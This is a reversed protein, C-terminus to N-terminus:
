SEKKRDLFPKISNKNKIGTLELIIKPDLGKNVCQMIFGNTLSNFSVKQNKIKLGAKESYIRFAKQIARDKFAFPIYQLHKEKFGIPLPVIRKVRMRGERNVKIQNKKIDIDERELNLVENLKLGSGWALLFAIKHRMQKTVRFLETFEDENISVRLSRPLIKISNTLLNHCIQITNYFILKLDEKEASLNHSGKDSLCDSTPKLYKLPVKGLLELSILYNKCDSVNRLNFKKDKKIRLIKKSSDKIIGDLFSRLFGLIAARDGKTKTQTNKLRNLSTLLEEDFLYNRLIYRMDEIENFLNKRVGKRIKGVM